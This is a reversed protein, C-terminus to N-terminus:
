NNECLYTSKVITENSKNLSFSFDYEVWNKDFVKINLTAMKMLSNLIEEFTKQTTNESNLVFVNIANSKKKLRVRTKYKTKLLTNEIVIDTILGENERELLILNPNLQIEINKNYISNFLVVSFKNGSEDKISSSCINENNTKLYYDNIWAIESSFSPNIQTTILITIIKMLKNM